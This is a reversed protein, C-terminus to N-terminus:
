YHEADGIADHRQTVPMLGFVAAIILVMVPDTIEASRGPLYCEAWSTAFLLVAIFITIPLRRGVADGLLYLASGYLFFKELFSLTNIQLSGRMLSLFPVWGFARGSSQFRFPEVRSAVVYACLIAGAVAARPRAPVGLLALWIIFALCAGALEAVRLETDVILVKASMVGLAFLLGLWPSRRRHVIAEILAYLALWIATQRFLDYASLSPTLFIPKLANWYKHLDITPVYPYMRYSLWAILLLTPIPNASVEGVFPLRFGGGIALAAVSGLCTGLTNAYFDTASTVRGEDYYQTLEMSLSLLAGALVALLLGGAFRPGRRSDLAFFFGFPLYLLINALFDARGPRENWTALFTAIPGPGGPPTRFVFPYLSGYVIVVMMAVAILSSQAPRRIEPM